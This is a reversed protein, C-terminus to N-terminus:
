DLKVPDEPREPLILPEEDIAKMIEAIARELQPDKGNLVSAPDNAVDIDPEVGYGEIIYSGDVDNTGFEPVNVGGGDILPGHDTIGVVGGWTRKGILPGLGAQKFRAPFIDGDSASNANILCAMHGYFVQNPYTGVRDSNRSFRTGLLSRNLREILMQSVNGGGNNRVDVVLGQKRIQPYYTKIFERLGEAGMNPIHIYGLRGESADAVKRRNGEVWALYILDTESSRPRVTVFRSDERTPDDSVELTLPQTAKDRLLEFPNRDATLDVGDISLVYDGESVNVGVETLPSRYTEEENQGKFIRSIRYRGSEEDLTFRCGLLAVRPRDPVDYDGGTIYAHGVNLEAIMESIVYNLDSRHGVHELLPRYQARIAEWDYGHMNEVYFYDRFRRWVEDFIQPWEEEPVRDVRVGGTSVSKASDKGGPTADLLTFNGGNRALIKKGDQSLVYTSVEEALDTAKRDEISFIVLTPKVGSERGYFFPGSRVFILHGEKATLQDYNDAPLPVRTVRSSLGELDISFEEESDKDDDEDDDTDSDEDEEKSDEDEAGNKDAEVKEDDDITVEDIEPPFPHEVDKRLAMAFLGVERTLSYNWEITSIQPAYDRDSLFYLFNGDPDWAPSYANFMPDTIPTPGEDGAKWLYLVRYDSPESLSFALWQGDPSWVYDLSRGSPEHAVKIVEKSEVNLVFISGTQDAFAVRAGDSSWLPNIKRATSERTLATPEGIGDQPVLYIEEEGTEDSVYLVSKGDPSWRAARDHAGPSRTLNRTPGHEIPASFVDGRGVFLVREGKPSLEFDELVDSADIRQPRRPLADDPVSISIKQVDGSEVNLVYLEGAKEFVIRGDDAKSPWRVDWTSEETLATTEESEPDFKYLNLTGSRDSSFYIADGIWMPDRETRKSHSVPTLEASERDFIYLDQAWGGEYRKWSRFERTLPSYVIQNGEPSLDGGGSIPMPLAEPFGGKASVTYLRTDTLDWGDRMSRFLVSSGDPTWGYVQNDYGWRPPLPGRAPYHTLRKPVGGHSPMVYVQEDGDYQGTFAIQSGDPSFKPFLELGPHTTLRRAIGGEAPATWLDGGYTFVVTSQHLDPYRLLKTEGNATQADALGIMLGLLGITLLRFRTM